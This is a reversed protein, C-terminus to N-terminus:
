IEGTYLYNRYLYSPQVTTGTPRTRADFVGGANIEFTTSTQSYRIPSIKDAGVIALM